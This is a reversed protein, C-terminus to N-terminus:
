FKLIFAAGLTFQSDTLVGNDDEFLNDDAFDYKLEPKFVFNNGFGLDGTVTIATVKTGLGRIGKPDSFYEGRIGIGKTADLGYRAYLAFGSWSESESGAAANLGLDVKDSATYTLVLDFLSRFDQVEGGFETGEPGGIWNIAGSFNEGPAFSFSAGLTKANNNDVIDDWNNYVAVMLGYNPSFNYRGRVGVHYFPGYNFLYSTSYNLNATADIVEYGIHTGFRGVEFSFKSSPSYVVYANQVLDSTGGISNGNVAEAGPGFNLDLVVDTKEASYGLSLQAIAFNIQNHFTEYLRQGNEQSEPNNANVFYYSHAHGSVSLSEYWAPTEDQAAASGFMLLFAGLGVIIRTLNTLKNEM